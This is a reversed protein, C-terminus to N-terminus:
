LLISTLPQYAGGERKWRIERGPRGLVEKFVEELPEFM